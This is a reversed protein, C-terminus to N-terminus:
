KLLALEIILPLHDSGINNGVKFDNIVFHESILIHDIPIMLFPMYTPWTPLIGFGQRANNLGSITEVALYDSSWM